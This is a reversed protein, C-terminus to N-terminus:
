SLESKLTLIVNNIVIQAGKLRKEILNSVNKILLDWFIVEIDILLDFFYILLDFFNFKILFNSKNQSKQDNKIKKARKEIEKQSKWNIEFKKILDLASLIM